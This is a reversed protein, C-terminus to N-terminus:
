VKKPDLLARELRRRMDTIHGLETESRHGFDIKCDKPIREVAQKLTTTWWGVNHPTTEVDIGVLRLSKLSTLAQLPKWDKFPGPDGCGNVVLVLNRLKPLIHSPIQRSHIVSSTGDLLINVMFTNELLLYGIEKQVQSCTALLGPTLKPSTGLPLHHGCSRLDVVSGIVFLEKYVWDRLEAPLDLFLFPVKPSGSSVQVAVAPAVIECCPKDTIEASKSERYIGNWGRSGYSTERTIGSGFYSADDRGEVKWENKINKIMEWVKKWLWDCFEGVDQWTQGIQTTGASSFPRNLMSKMQTKTSGHVIDTTIAEAFTSDRWDLWHRRSVEWHVASQKSTFLKGPKEIGIFVEPMTAISGDQVDDREHPSTTSAVPESISSTAAREFTYRIFSMAAPYSSAVAELEDSLKQWHDGKKMGQQFYEDQQYYQMFSDAAVDENGFLAFGQLEARTLAQILSDNM